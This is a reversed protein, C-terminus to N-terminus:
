GYLELRTFKVENKSGAKQFLFRGNKDYVVTIENKRISYSKEHKLLEEKAEKAWKDTSDALRIQPVRPM